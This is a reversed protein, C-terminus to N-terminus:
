NATSKWEQIAKIHEAKLKIPKLHRIFFNLKKQKYFEFEERPLSWVITHNQKQDFDTTSLNIVPQYQFTLRAMEGDKRKRGLIVTHSFIVDGKAYPFTHSIYAKEEDYKISIAPDDLRIEKENAVEGLAHLSETSLLTLSFLALLSFLFPSKIFHQNM